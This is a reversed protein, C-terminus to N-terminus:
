LELVEDFSASSIKEFSNEKFDERKGERQTDSEGERREREWDTLNLLLESAM